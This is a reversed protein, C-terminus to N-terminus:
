CDIHTWMMTFLNDNRETLPHLELSREHKTLRPMWLPPLRELAHNGIGAFFMLLLTSEGM